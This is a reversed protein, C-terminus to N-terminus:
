ALLHRVWCRAVSENRQKSEQAMMSLAQQRLASARAPDREARAASIIKDVDAATMQQMGVLPNVGKIKQRKPEGLQKRRL